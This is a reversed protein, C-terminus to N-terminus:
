MPVTPMWFEKSTFAYCKTSIVEMFSPLNYRWAKQSKEHASPSEGVMLWRLILVILAFFMLTLEFVWVGPINEMLVQNLFLKEIPRIYTILQIHVWSFFFAPPILSTELFKNLSLTSLLCLLWLSTPQNLHNPIQPNKLSQMSWENNCYFCSRM